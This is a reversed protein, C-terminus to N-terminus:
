TVGRSQPLQGQCIEVKVRERRWLTKYIQAM